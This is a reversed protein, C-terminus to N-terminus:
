LRSRLWDSSAQPDSSVPAPPRAGPPPAISPSPAPPKPSRPPPATRAAATAASPPPPSTRAFAPAAPASSSAAAAPGVLAFSPAPVSAPVPVVAAAPGPHENRLAAGTMVLATLGLLVALGLLRSRAGRGVKGPLARVVGDRARELASALDSMSAFRASPERALARRLVDAVAADLSADIRPEEARVRAELEALTRAEYPRRGTLAEHVCVGLSFQDSLATARAGMLVEPAM